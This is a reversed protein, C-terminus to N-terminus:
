EFVIRLGFRNTSLQRYDHSRYCSRCRFADMNWAGGRLCRRPQRDAGDVWHRGDFPAGQYDNHWPDACWEWVNGIIDHLGWPNPRKLGVAHTCEYGNEDFWAYDLLTHRIEAAHSTPDLLPGWPGCFYDGDSGARCAYEWEAESPLRACCGTRASLRRCFETADDWSVNDVPHDLSIAFESPNDGVIALWQRQTVPYKAIHLASSIAVAHAPTESFLDNTSGMRFTGPPLRVFVCETGNVVITRSKMLAAAIARVQELSDGEPGQDPPTWPGPHPYPSLNVYVFFFTDACSLQLAGLDQSPRRRSMKHRASCRGTARTPSASAESPKQRSM